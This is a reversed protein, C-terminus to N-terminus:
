VVFIILIYFLLLTSVFINFIQTMVRIIRYNYGGLIMRHKGRQTQSLFPNEINNVGQSCSRSFNIYEPRLQGHVM